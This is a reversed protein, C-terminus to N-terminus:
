TCFNDDKTVDSGYSSLELNMLLMWVVFTFTFKTTTDLSNYYSINTQQMKCSATLVRVDCDVLYLIATILFIKNKQLCIFYKILVNVIILIDKPLYMQQRIPTSLLLVLECTIQYTFYFVVKGWMGLIKSKLICM